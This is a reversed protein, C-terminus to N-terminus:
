GRLVRYRLFIDSGVRRRSLLRLQTAGSLTLAGKGDALTPAHCGGLVLPCITVFVEDVVGAEFLAGNLEGGGECLLTGLGWRQRLWGLARPWHIQDRGCVLTADVLGRLRALRRESARQTTLIVIPSFRHQFIVARPDVSGSGSVIIRVPYESLGRRLRLRRYQPGGPGLTTPQPHVTRAGCIIADARARLEYLLRADRRSGFPEYRRTAPALKGDATMAVNLFVFPRNAGRKLCPIVGPKM